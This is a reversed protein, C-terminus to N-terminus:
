YGSIGAAKYFEEYSIEQGKPNYYKATKAHVIDDNSNNDGSFYETKYTGNETNILVTKTYVNRLKWQEGFIKISCNDKYFSDIYKAKRYKDETICTKLKGNDFFIATEKTNDDTSYEIKHNSIKVTRLIKLLYEDQFSSRPIAELPVGCRKAEKNLKEKITAIEGKVAEARNQEEKKQLEEKTMPKYPVKIIHPDSVKKYNFRPLQFRFPTTEQQQYIKTDGMIINEEYQKEKYIFFVEM